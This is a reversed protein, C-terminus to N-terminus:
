CPINFLIKITYSMKFFYRTLYRTSLYRSPIINTLVKCPVKNFPLKLLVWCFINFLTDQFIDLWPGSLYRACTDLYFIDQQLTDQFSYRAQYRSCKALHRALYRALFRLHYRISLYKSIYRTALYKAIVDLFTNQNTDQM